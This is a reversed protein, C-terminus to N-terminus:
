ESPQAVSAMAPIMGGACSYFDKPEKRWFLASKRKSANAPMGAAQDGTEDERLCILM